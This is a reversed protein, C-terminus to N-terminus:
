NLKVLNDIIIINKKTIIQAEIYNLITVLINYNIEVTIEIILIILVM